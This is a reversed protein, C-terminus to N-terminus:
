RTIRLDATAGLLVDKELRVVQPGSEAPELLIRVCVGRNPGERRRLHQQDELAFRADLDLSTGLQLKLVPSM